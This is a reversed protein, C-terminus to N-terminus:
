SNSLGQAPERQPQCQQMVQRRIAEKVQDFIYDYHSTFDDPEWITATNYVKDDVRVQCRLEKRNQDITWPQITVSISHIKM